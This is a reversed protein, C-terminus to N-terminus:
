KVNGEQDRAVKMDDIALYGLKKLLTKNSTVAKIFKEQGETTNDKQTYMHEYSWIKWDNTAVNAETPKVDDIKLAKITDKINSFAVYSIAGPTQSVM